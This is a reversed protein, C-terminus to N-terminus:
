TVSVSRSPGSQVAPVFFGSAETIEEGRESKEKRKRSSLSFPTKSFTRKSVVPRLNGLRSRLGFVCGGEERPSIQAGAGPGTVGPAADARPAGPDGDRWPVCAGRGAFGRPSPSRPASQTPPVSARPVQQQPLPVTPARQRDGPSVSSGAPFGATGPPKGQTRLPSRWRDGAWEWSQHKGRARDDDARNATM